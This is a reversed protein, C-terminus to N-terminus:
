KDIAITNTNTNKNTPSLELTKYYTNKFKKRM